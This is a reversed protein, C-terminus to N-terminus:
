LSLICVMNTSNGPWLLAMEKKQAAGIKMSHLHNELIVFLAM